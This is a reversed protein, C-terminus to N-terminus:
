PERNENIINRKVNEMLNFRSSYTKIYKRNYLYSIPDLIYYDKRFPNNSGLIRDIKLTFNEILYCYTDKLWIYFDSITDNNKTLKYIKHYVQYLERDEKILMKQPSLRKLDDLDYYSFKPYLEVNLINLDSYKKKNTTFYGYFDVCFTGGFLKKDVLDGKSMDQYRQIDSIGASQNCSLYNAYIIVTHIDFHYAVQSYFLMLNEDGIVKNPDVSTYKVYYNVHMQPVSNVEGIEIFFLIHSDYISYISFGNESEVAYFNKYVDTSDYWEQLITLEKGGLDIKFQNADNIYQREFDKLKEMLSAGIKREIKLFDVKKIPLPDIIRSFGIEGNLIWDFEYRTKVQSSFKVNTHYYECDMDKKILKFKSAPPFIVEQEEPFYSVTELCLAVGKTNAPVNIKILILGFKDDFNYFPNRTTSMFGKETFIDGIKLNQIYSDSKVFRYLTYKKDFEPSELIIKWMPIILNELYVNQNKYITQNRLYQNMMFSGQLTYFQIFGMNKNNTIYKKHNLLVTYSMEQKKVKECLLAIENEDIKEDVKEGNNRLINIIEQQTFYPLIHNFQPLFSPRKCTTIKQGLYKSYKYFVYVYTKYLLDLDFYNMFKIMLEIKRLHREELPDSINTNKMKNYKEELTDLVKKDPFRYFQNTVRDYVDYKDILFINSGYVDFLPVKTEIQSIERKMEKIIDSSTNIYDKIEKDKNSQVDKENIPRYEFEYLYDLVDDKDIIEIKNQKINFLLYKM